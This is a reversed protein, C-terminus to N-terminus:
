WTMQLWGGNKAAASTGSISPALPHLTGGQIWGHVPGSATSWFLLSKGTSDARLCTTGAVELEPRLLGGTIRGRRGRTLWRRRGWGARGCRSV